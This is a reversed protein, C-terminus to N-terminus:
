KRQKNQPASKTRGARRHAEARGLLSPRHAPNLALAKGFASVAADDDGDAFRVAGLNHWAEWM